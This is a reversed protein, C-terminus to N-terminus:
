VTSTDQQVHVQTQIPLRKSATGKYGVKFFFFPVDRGSPKFHHTSRYYASTDRCNKTADKSRNMIDTSTKLVEPACWCAGDILLM